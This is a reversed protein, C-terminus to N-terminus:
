PFKFIPLVRTLLSRPNYVYLSTERKHCYKKWRKGWVLVEKATNHRDQYTKGRQIDTQRTQDTKLWFYRRDYLDVGVLVIQKWGFLYGFNICDFLTSPGHVLGGFGGRFEENPYRTKKPANYYFLSESSEPLCQNALIRLGTLAVQLIFITKQYFPSKKLIEAYLQFEKSWVAPNCDDSALERILHFDMRLLNQYIFWNFSLTDEKEIREIEKPTLDNISYGSGFIFLTDSKKRRVIEQEGVERIFGRSSISELM